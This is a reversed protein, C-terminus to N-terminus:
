ILFVPGSHVGMRVQCFPNNTLARAIEVACGAPQEPSRFFVLAMGDGTHLSVLDDAAARARQFEDTAQVLRQLRNVVQPQQDTALRSSGVIDIFLVHAM